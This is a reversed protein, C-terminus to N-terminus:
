KKLGNLILGTMQDIVPEITRVDNELRMEQKLGHMTSLLIFILTDMESQEMAKLVDAKIGENLIQTLLTGEWKLTNEHHFVKMKQFSSISDADMGSGLAYFFPHKERVVKLKTVFFSRIQAEFTDAKNVAEQMASRVQNLEGNLVADLLEDKSKYYYYLSSRGKGVAKAVDDMTVKALGYIGFLQKAAQLIQQQMLDEKTNTLTSM